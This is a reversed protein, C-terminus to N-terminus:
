GARQLDRLERYSIRRVGNQELLDAVAPDLLCVSDHARIGANVTDYARLEEGDFVPHAFIECVGPPLAPISQFFVNRTQRPWPYIIRENFLLGRAAARDAAAGFTAEGWLMRVPLRFEQALALYVDCLDDREQLVNMHADLHTVDVGWGLATEIQASCEAHADTATLRQLAATRTAWLFGDADHLSTGHTLGRWRYNRYESTLTLHVGVPLGQFMAAAEHAWPCPVMLTASTAVGDTMAQLTAVNAAHSSGLDDCNIILLRNDAHYGLREALSAASM